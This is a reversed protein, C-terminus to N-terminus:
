SKDVNYFMIWGAPPFLLPLKPLQRHLLPSLYSARFTEYLFVATWIIVFWTITTTRRPMFSIISRLADSPQATVNGM